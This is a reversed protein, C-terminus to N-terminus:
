SRTQMKRELIVLLGCKQLAAKHGPTLQQWTTDLVDVERENVNPFTHRICEMNLHYYVNQPQFSKRRGGGVAPVDDRIAQMKFVLNRPAKLMKPPFKKKCGYCHKAYNGKPVLPTVMPPNRPVFPDLNETLAPQSPPSHLPACSTAANSQNHSSSETSKTFTLYDRLYAPIQVNRTPRAATVSQSPQSAPTRNSNPNEITSAENRAADSSSTTHQTRRNITARVTKTRKRPPSKDPARMITEFTATPTQSTPPTLEDDGEEGDSPEHRKGQLPNKLLVKDPAKHKAGKGATFYKSAPDGFIDDWYDGSSVSHIIDTAEQMQTRLNKRSKSAESPARGSSKINGQLYGMLETNQMVMSLFDDYACAVLSQKNRRKYGANFAESLNLGSFGVGRFAPFLTYKRIDWWKIWQLIEKNKNAVQQLDTLATNYESATTVKCMQKCLDMFVDKQTAPVKASYKLANKMFHMQCTLIRHHFEDGFVETISNYNSWAADVMIFKPNFTYNEGKIDTLMKNLEKWFQQCNRTSETSVEMSALRIMKRTAPHVVSLVLTIYGSCRNHTGDFYVVEESMPGAGNKDLNIALEGMMRSSKFVFSPRSPDIINSNVSYVMYPDRGNLTDKVMAVAEFSQQNPHHFRTDENQSINRKANRVASRDSLKEAMSYVEDINGGEQLTEMLKKRIINTPGLDANERVAENIIEQNSKIRPKLVCSHNGLHYIHLLNSVHSWEVVKYASCSKRAVVSGCSFCVDNTQEKEFHHTNAKGGTLVKSCSPNPCYKNGQCRGARRQGNFNKRRASRLLFYRGDEKLQNWSKGQTNVIYHQKGNINYPCEDVFEVTVDQFLKYNLHKGSKMSSVTSVDSDYEHKELVVDIDDNTSRHSSSEDDITLVDTADSQMVEHTSQKVEHTSQKVEHTSQKVEHTPTHSFVEDSDSDSSMVKYLAPSPICEPIVADYHDLDRIVYINKAESDRGRYTTVSIKGEDKHLIHLNLNLASPLAHVVLDVVDVQSNGHFLYSCLQSNLEEADRGTSFALYDQVNDNIYDFVIQKMLAMKISVGHVKRLTIQASLLFCYGNGIVKSVKLDKYHLYQQLHKWNLSTKYIGGSKQHPIYYKLMNSRRPLSQSSIKGEKKKPSPPPTFDESSSQVAHQSDSSSIM